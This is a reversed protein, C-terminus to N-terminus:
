LDRTIRVDDLCYRKLEDWKGENYYNVALLGHGSKKVHLTESALDNLALRRGVANKVEDMIDFTAFQALTGVYYPQLVPLDFSHINFGIILSSHELIRFLTDLEQELFTYYRDSEYSYLGVVSIGLQDAKKGGVEQFTKKTELDLVVPKGM